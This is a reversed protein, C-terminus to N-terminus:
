ISDMKRHVGDALWYFGMYYFPISSLYSNTLIQKGSSTLFKGKWPDLRTIMKQPLFGFAGMALHHDSIPIGLYKMPLDRLACNLMNAMEEKEGQL